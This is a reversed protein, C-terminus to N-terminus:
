RWVARGSGEGVRGFRFGACRAGAGRGGGAFFGVKELMRAGGSGVAFRGGCSWAAGVRRRSGGAPRMGDGPAPRSLRGKACGLCRFRLGCGLLVMVRRGGGEAGLGGEGGRGSRLATGAGGPPSGGVSNPPRPTGPWETPQWDPHNAPKRRPLQPAQQCRTADWSYVQYHTLTKGFNEMHEAGGFQFCLAMESLFISRCPWFRFSSFSRAGSSLVPRSRPNALIKWTSLAGLNFAYCRNQVLFYKSVALLPSSSPSRTRSSLASRSRPNALIKWTSSAGLNFAYRWKPCLSEETRDPAPATSRPPPPAPRPWPM